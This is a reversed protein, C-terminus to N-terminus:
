LTRIGLVIMLGFVVVIYWMYVNTAELHICIICLPPKLNPSPKPYIYRLAHQVVFISALNSIYRLNVENRRKSM